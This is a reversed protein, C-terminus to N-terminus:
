VIINAALSFQVLRCKIGSEMKAPNVTCCFIYRFIPLGKLIPNNREIDEQEMKCYFRHFCFSNPSSFFHKLCTKTKVSMAKYWM